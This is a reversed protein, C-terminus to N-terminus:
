TKEDSACTRSTAEATSSRPTAESAPAPVARREPEVAQVGATDAAAFAPVRAELRASPRNEPLRGLRALTAEVAAIPPSGAALLFTSRDPRLLRWRDAGVTGLVRCRVGDVVVVWGRAAKTDVAGIM